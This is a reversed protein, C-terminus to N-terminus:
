LLYRNFVNFDTIMYPEMKWTKIWTIPIRTDWRCWDELPLAQFRMPLRQRESFYGEFPIHGVCIVLEIADVAEWSQAAAATDGCMAVPPLLSGGVDLLLASLPTLM